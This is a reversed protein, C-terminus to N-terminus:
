LLGLFVAFDLSFGLFVLGSRLFPTVATSRTAWKLLSSSTSKRLDLDIDTAPLLRSRACCITAWRSPFGIGSFFVLFRLAELDGFFDVGV